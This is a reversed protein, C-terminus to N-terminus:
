FLTREPPCYFDSAVYDHESFADYIFQRNKKLNTKLAHFDNMIYHTRFNLKRRQPKQQQIIVKAQPWM